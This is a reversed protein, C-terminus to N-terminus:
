VNKASSILKPADPSLNWMLWGASYPAPTASENRHASRSLATDTACTTCTLTCPLLVPTPSWSFSSASSCTHERCSVASGQQSCYTTSRTISLNNQCRNM